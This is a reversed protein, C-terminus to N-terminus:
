VASAARASLAASILGALACLAAAWFVAAFGLHSILWGGGVGGLVGSLGYGLTTYLAQGRGRLRGAFLRNLAPALVVGFVPRGRHVLAINVTFEGNRSIFEKTGDLPDVLWFWEGVEPTHGAAVAEEAVVAVGPALRELAPTIIAEAREDAVTVPSADDKGRVAFDGAYVEMITAGATRAVAIVQAQWSDQAVVSEDM